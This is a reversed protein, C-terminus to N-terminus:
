KGKRLAKFTKRAAAKDAMKLGATRKAMTKLEAAPHERNDKDKSRVMKAVASSAAKEKSAKAKNKYSDMAKPTDLVEDVKASEMRNMKSLAKAHHQKKNMAKVMDANNKASKMDAEADKKGQVHHQYESKYDEGRLKALSKQTSTMQRVPKKRGTPTRGMAADHARNREREKKLFDGQMKPAKEELEVSEKKLGGMMKGYQKQRISKLSVGPRQKGAARQAMRDKKKDADIEAQTAPRYKEEVTEEKVAKKAKQLMSMDGTILATMDSLVGLLMEREAPTVTKGSEMKGFVRLLKQVDGKKVLGATALQKLKSMDTAELITEEATLKAKM